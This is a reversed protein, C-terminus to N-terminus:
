RASHASVHYRYLRHRHAVIHAVYVASVSSTFKDAVPELLAAITPEGAWGLALSALTVGLQTASILLTPNDLLRLAAQAGRSGGQAREELKTRRVSVLAFESAVFFANAVVLAAVALLKLFTGAPLMPGVFFFGGNQLATLYSDPEDM